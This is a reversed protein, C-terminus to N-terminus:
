QFILITELITKNKNNVKTEIEMKLPFIQYFFWFQHRNEIRITRTKKRIQDSVWLLLLLLLQYDTKPDCEEVVSVMNEKKLFVEYIYILFAVTSYNVAMGALEKPDKKIAEWKDQQM